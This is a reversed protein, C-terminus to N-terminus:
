LGRMYVFSGKEDDEEYMFELTKVKNSFYDKDELCQKNRKYNSNYRNKEFHSINVYDSNNSVRIIEKVGEKFSVHKHTLIGNELDSIILIYKACALGTSAVCSCLELTASEKNIDESRVTIEKVFLENYNNVFNHLLYYLELTM